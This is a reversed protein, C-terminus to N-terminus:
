GPRLVDSRRSHQLIETFWDVCAQDSSPLDDIASQVLSRVRPLWAARVGRLEDPSSQINGMTYYSDLGYVYPIVSGDETVVLPNVNEVLRDASVSDLFPYAVQSARRLDGAFAVDARVRTGSADNLLEAILKLRLLDAETLGTGQIDSSM